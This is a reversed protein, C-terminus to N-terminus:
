RSVKLLLVKQTEVDFFAKLKKWSGTKMRSIKM